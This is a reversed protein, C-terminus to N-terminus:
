RPRLWDGASARVFSDLMQIHEARDNLCPIYSFSEGGSSLFLERYGMNVEELTELCDASFGPCIVDVSKFGQTPLEQFVQEAYPQLWAKPGFRSQFCLRWEPPDLRGALLSATEACQKQYPDGADCVEQPLGHFSMVLCDSQGNGSWHQRVTQELCEIYEGRTAYGNMFRIEPVFRRKALVKGIEDFISATTSGSYQPYMPIVLVRDIGQGTLADLVEAISPSGYRMAHRVVCGDAGNTRLFKKLGEAQKVANIMLPSGGDQWVKQYAEASRRPRTVLVIGNLIFWWVLKPLEVVRTDSLFQRLFRRVSSPSPSDPTGLNVLMVGFRKTDSGQDFNDIYKPM